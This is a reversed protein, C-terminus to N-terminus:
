AYPQQWMPNHQYPNVLTCLNAKGYIWDTQKTGYWTLSLGVSPSYGAGGEVNTYVMPNALPLGIAGGSFQALMNVSGGAFIGCYDSVDTVGYVYGQTITKDLPISKSVGVGVGGFSYECFKESDFVVTYGKIVSLNGRSWSTINEVFIMAGDPMDPIDNSSSVGYFAMLFEDNPSSTNASGCELIVYFCTRSGGNMPGYGYSDCSNEPDNNCYAFMNCGLLGQGTSAFADANVFRRTAPDYYRSQLYYLSSESDYYYGRYRLPNKEALTGTATLVKGYPDYTYTAVANGSTDVLGMVDGQLNTIYYYTTGDVQMAYPKGTNDYFFNHTETVGNTTVKEQLLKGSAYIYSYATTTESELIRDASQTAATNEEAAPEDMEPSLTEDPVDGDM